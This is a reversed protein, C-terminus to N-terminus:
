RSASSSDEEVKEVHIEPVNGIKTIGLGRALFLGGQVSVRDASIAIPVQTAAVRRIELSELLGALM